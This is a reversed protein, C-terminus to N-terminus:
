FLVFKFISATFTLVFYWGSHLAVSQVFWLYWNEGSTGFASAHLIFPLIFSFPSMFKKLRWIFALDAHFISSFLLAGDAIDNPKFCDWLLGLSIWLCNLRNKWCCNVLLLHSFLLTMPFKVSNPLRSVFFHKWRNSISICNSVCIILGSCFAVWSIM